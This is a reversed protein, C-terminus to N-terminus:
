NGQREHVRRALEKADAQDAGTMWLIASQPFLTLLQTENEGGIVVYDVSRLGAVVNARAEAPLLPTTPSDVLAVLLHAGARFERIRRANAALLPDFFGVVLHCQRGRSLAASTAAAVAAAPQIKQRTDM